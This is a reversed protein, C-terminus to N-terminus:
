DGAARTPPIKKHVFRRPMMQTNDLKEKIIRMRGTQGRGAHLGCAIEGVKERRGLGAPWRPGVEQNGSDRRFYEELRM